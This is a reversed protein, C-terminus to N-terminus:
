LWALRRGTRQVCVPRAIRNGAYVSFGSHRWNMLKQILDDAIKGKRKLMALIRPRFIEEIAVPLLNPCSTYLFRSPM